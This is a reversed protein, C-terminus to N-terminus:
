GEKSASAETKLLTVIQSKKPNGGPFKNGLTRKAERMFDNHNLSNDKVAVLLQSATRPASETEEGTQAAIAAPQQAGAAPRSQRGGAPADTSKAAGSQNEDEDTPQRVGLAGVQLTGKAKILNAISAENLAVEKSDGPAITVPRNRRDYVVRESRGINTLQVM